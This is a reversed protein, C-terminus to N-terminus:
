INKKFYEIFMIRDRFGDIHHYGPKGALPKRLKKFEEHAESVAQVYDKQGKLRYVLQSCRDLFLRWRIVLEAREKGRCLALNNDLMLLNNRYNLKLKWPSNQPLTGGGLHYVVSQPVVQVKYGALQLRWCFDIEEMHAFFRDDLGGLQKWLSSRVMMCAGTVWMVRAPKDYQGTDRATRSMIRGRCYTYGWRDMLGGAAGAYEFCDRQYYSLLKPGCAGCEPHSDMWQELPGLWGESVEIDSNILVFYEADIQDLARNYGGTFGYNKDLAICRVDAFQERVLDLSGDKSANDAVVVQADMGQVSRVLGPLFQQLYQRTNWNLIVVATKM